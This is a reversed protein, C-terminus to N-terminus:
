EVVDGCTEFDGLRRMARARGKTQGIVKHLIVYYRLVVGSADIIPEAGPHEVFVFMCHLHREMMKAHKELEADGTGGYRNLVKALM